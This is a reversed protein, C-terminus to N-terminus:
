DSSFGSCRRKQLASSASSWMISHDAYDAKVAMPTMLFYNIQIDAKIIRAKAKISFKVDQQVFSPRRLM